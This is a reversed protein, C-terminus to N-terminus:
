EIMSSLLGIDLFFNITLISIGAFCRCYSLYHIADLVNTKGQGNNGILCNVGSSFDLRAEAINKFNLISIHELVM